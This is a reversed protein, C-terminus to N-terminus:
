IAADLVREAHRKAWTTSTPIGRVLRRYFLPGVLADILDGAPVTTRLEGSRVGRRVLAEVARRREETFARYRAAFAADADVAAVIAPLTAGWESTDLARALEVVIAILQARVPGDASTPPPGSAEEIADALLDDRSAWNRYITSRAVSAEVAIADVSAGAGERRLVTRAAALM